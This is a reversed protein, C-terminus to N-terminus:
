KELLLEDIVSSLEGEFDENEDFGESGETIKDMYTKQRITEFQLRIHEQSHHDKISNLFLNLKRGADTKTYTNWLSAQAKFTEFDENEGWKPCDDIKSTNLNSKPTEKKNLM